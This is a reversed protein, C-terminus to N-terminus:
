TNAKSNRARGPDLQQVVLGHSSDVQRSSVETPNLEEDSGIMKKVQERLSM